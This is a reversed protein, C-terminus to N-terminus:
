FDGEAEKPGAIRPCLFTPKIINIALIFCAAPPLTSKTRKKIYNQTIYIM